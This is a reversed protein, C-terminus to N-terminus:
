EFKKALHLVIITKVRIFVESQMRVTVWMPEQEEESTTVSITGHCMNLVGHLDNVVKSEMDGVMMRTRRCKGTDIKKTHKIASQLRIPIRLVHQM